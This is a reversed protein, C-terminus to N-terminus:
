FDASNFDKYEKEFFEDFDMDKGCSYIDITDPDIGQEFLRAIFNVLKFYRDSFKEKVNKHDKLWDEAMEREMNSFDPDEEKKKRAEILQKFGYDEFEPHLMRGRSTILIYNKKLLEPEIEKKIYDSSKGLHISITTLSAKGTKQGKLCELYKEQWKSLGTYPDINKIDFVKKVNKLSFDGYLGILDLLNNLVRMNTTHNLLIDIAEENVNRKRLYKRLNEKSLESLEIMNFREKLPKPLESPETTTGIFIVNKLKIREGNLYVEGDQIAPYIIEAVSTRMNHIEDVLVIANEKLNTVTEIIRNKGQSGTIYVFPRKTEASIMRSSYTKGTGANGYLLLNIRKGEKLREIIKKIIDGVGNEYIVDEFTPSDIVEGIKEKVEEFDTTKVPKFEEEFVPDGIYEKFSEGTLLVNLFNLIGM